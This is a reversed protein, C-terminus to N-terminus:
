GGLFTGPIFQIADLVWKVGITTQHKEIEQPAPNLALAPRENKM